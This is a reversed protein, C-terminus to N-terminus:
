RALAPVARATDTGICSHDCHFVLIDESQEVLRGTGMVALRFGAAGLRLGARGLPAAAEVARAVRKEGDGVGGVDNVAGDAARARRPIIAAGTRAAGIDVADAHGGVKGLHVHNQPPALLPKVACDALGDLGVLRRRYEDVIRADGTQLAVVDASHGLGSRLLKTDRDNGHIAGAEVAVLVEAVADGAFHDVLMHDSGALGARRLDGRADDGVVDVQDALPIDAAFEPVDGGIEVLQAQADEAGKRSVGPEAFHLGHVPCLGIHHDTGLGHKVDGALQLVFVARWKELAAEVAHSVRRLRKAIECAQKAIGIKRSANFHQDRALLRPDLRRKGRQPFTESALARQDEGAAVFGPRHDRGHLIEAHHHDGGAGLLRSLLVLGADQRQHTRVREHNRVVILRGEDLGEVVPLSIDEHCAVTIDIRRQLGADGEEIDIVNPADAIGAIVTQDLRM